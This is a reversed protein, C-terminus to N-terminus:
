AALITRSARPFILTSRSIMPMMRCSNHSGPSLKPCWFLQTSMTSSSSEPSGREFTRLLNNWNHLSRRTVGYTTNVARFTKRLSGWSHLFPMPALHMRMIISMKRFRKDWCSPASSTSQLSWCKKFSTTALTAVCAENIFLAILASPFKLSCSRTSIYWSCMPGAGSTPSPESMKWRVEGRARTEKLDAHAISVERIGNTVCNACTRAYRLRAGRKKASMRCLDSCSSRRM